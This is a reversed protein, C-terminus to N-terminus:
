MQQSNLPPSLRSKQKEALVQQALEYAERSVKLLAKHIPSNFAAGLDLMAKRVISDLLATIMDEMSYGSNNMAGRLTIFDQNPVALVEKRM